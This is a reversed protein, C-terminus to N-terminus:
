GHIEGVFRGRAKLEAAKSNERVPAFQESVPHRNLKAAPGKVDQHSQDLRASSHEALARQPRADPRIPNDLLVGEL